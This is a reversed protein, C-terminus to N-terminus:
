PFFRNPSIPCVKQMVKKLFMWSGWFLFLFLFNGKSFKWIVKYGNLFEKTLYRINLEQVSHDDLRGFSLVSGRYM